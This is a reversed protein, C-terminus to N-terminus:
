ANIRERLTTIVKFGFFRNVGSPDLMVGYETTEVKIVDVNSVDLTTLATLILDEKASMAEYHESISRGEGAEAHLYVYEFGRNFTWPRTSATGFGSPGTSPEASGGTKKLPFMIPCERSTVRTPIGALDKITVGTVSLAAIATHIGASNLAM